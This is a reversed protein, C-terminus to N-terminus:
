CKKWRSWKVMPTRIQSVNHRHGWDLQEKIRPKKSPHADGEHEFRRKKRGRHWDKQLALVNNATNPFGSIAAGAGQEDYRFRIEFSEELSLLKFEITTPLKFPFAKGAVLFESLDEYKRSLAEILNSEEPFRCFVYGICHFASNEYRPQQKFEFCFMSATWRFAAPRLQEEFFQQDTAIISDAKDCIQPLAEVQDLAPRQMRMRINLRNLNSSNGCHDLFQRDASLSKMHERKLRNFCSRDVWTNKGEYQAETYKGCGATLFLPEPSKPWLGRAEDQAVRGAYNHALGGDTFYEGRM